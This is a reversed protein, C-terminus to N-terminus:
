RLDDISCGLAKAIAHATRPQAAYVESRSREIRSLTAPDIHDHGETRDALARQTLGAAIRLERVKNGIIDGAM